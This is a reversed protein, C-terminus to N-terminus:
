PKSEVAPKSEVPKSEEEPKPKLGPPSEGAKDIKPDAWTGTVHYRYSFLRNLPKQLVTNAVLAAAGVVPNILAATGVAALGGLEPRVVVQLDQTENKLDTEGQMEVQAAPGSIRLPETTRMVGKRIALKADISDFALGDSFIDRFDLTLRRPLSQLSILGLLKGVGPELKNFQGKEAEVTMQGTLSPYHIGTLPGGWQLDGTLKASGRRVTDAYGLRDLLKGIDKAALEFELRTQHRGNNIWVGKGKLAGDPNQLNLTDLHWAGKDNRAKLDLKGLAKDGIYFDEVVLSMGPLSNILTTSGEGIETAPRVVLRKFNGEVWGEGASKWFVDGIAERTNLGIQWGGDRPRLSVDVQNYDREFLRLQPTKLTVVNLALGSGDTAAGNGNDPLFNKWADADIRPVAVRVALGKDPLRPETDGVAFVGREWSDLRRVIVGQGIKGLTIRYQERQADPTSREIRLALPTTANKNLPEPLPSSVGLLDSEVVVEANRRRINIDAKWGASGTLHNILPWGFHKSVEGINATGSAVVGVKDGASRVLVKLPGGFVRGSIDQAVVSSETLLLRGNVQTLPPLGALPQLQNNQFRYDGRMKTDLAHRLPIDLELSLSGNGVAKMGDTFHDIKDSVPSQEMFRFFETTPGQALGRVLLMEEQSEFDPIDVTVGSLGAGLIRGKSAVIKMGTGFSMDADIHEITPWGAAYDIKAETAKATVIFKGGKGDRFPFDKLNGKLVLRGDYGHGAVIGRKLWNRAEANVVHPMYRWVARGDARDVSATLDIEGPGEGTYRYSGLASGAADPGAFELKELKIAVAEASNKWSARAKLADLAIDPEPFIAPLSLGSAGSNLTLEGGKETLDINGSLGSAGPFYRDAEIGLDRFSTKLSYRKLTEGDLAWSAKLETIHGQPRHRTLLDRSQADLPMYSALHGLVSLDLFSASANGSIAASKPDQRWEVKFDTPAIRIGDQTLLEVKHGALAWEDAKYRGELRGRMSALDLEPLKRGLSIRLEELAVDATLKGAGDAIDGWIRLAGRGQPLHVPYDVWPQWGALDAYDLEVFVKGSLNDLAEGLDGKVEGRIDIRAALADPPAASLGFRHRRGSNDLAFQLDELVLPPAKRLRDDWVITADRIRIRKQELVWEAFAPDSEGETDMGAVTLKGNTERRVHLVPGDFALLALTPRLRWLTQWSLVGEVRALSFAPVGQRDALVVDDLVLDPNLGQWHAEIRGITVPQGVARSAAQEIQVRYDAIKPLVTYRLALVLVAFVLWAAFVSWGLIRLGRGVAPKALIPWLWHLRHYLGIRVDPSIVSSNQRRPESM